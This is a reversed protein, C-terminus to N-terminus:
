EGGYAADLPWWASIGVTAATYAAFFFTLWWTLRVWGRRRVAALDLALESERPQAATAKGTSPKPKPTANPAVTAAPPAPRPPASENEKALELAYSGCAMGILFTPLKVLPQEHAVLYPLLYWPFAPSWGDVRYGPFPRFLVRSYLACAICCPCQVPGRARLHYGLAVSQLRPM